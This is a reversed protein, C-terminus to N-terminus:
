GYDKSSRFFDEILNDYDANNATDIFDSDIYGGEYLLIQKDRFSLRM